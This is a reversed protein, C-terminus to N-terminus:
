YYLVTFYQNYLITQGTSIKFKNQVDLMNQGDTKIELWWLGYQLIYCPHREQDFVAKSVFAMYKPM